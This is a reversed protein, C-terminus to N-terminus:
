LCRLMNVSVIDFASSSQSTYNINSLATISLDTVNNSTVGWLKELNLTKDTGDFLKNEKSSFSLTLLLLECGSGHSDSGEIMHVIRLM